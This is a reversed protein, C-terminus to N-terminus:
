VPVSTAVPAKRLSYGLLALGSVASAVAGIVWGNVSNTTASEAMLAFNSNAFNYSAPRGNNMGASEKTFSVVGNASQQMMKQDHVVKAKGDSLSSGTHIIKKGYKLAIVPRLTDKVIVTRVARPQAKGDQANKCGGTNAGDNWNGNSDMVRYTILYTGTKEVNVIKDSSTEPVKSKSTWATCVGFKGQLSDMATAGADTYPFSAEITVTQQKNHKRTGDFPTDEIQCMPCTTDQVTVKRTATAAKNNNSDQCDYKIEYDGVRALNVVDGSVEVDQSINGDVADSCTAGADVYNDNRTAEYTQRDAELITIIPRTDDMNLVTRCKSVSHGAKDKCTYKLVYTGPKLTNFTAGANGADPHATNSNKCDTGHKMWKTTVKDTIDGDCIDFCIFGQFKKTIGEIYEMDGTFGASHQMIQLEEGNGSVQNFADINAQNFYKWAVGGKSQTGITKSFGKHEASTGKNAHGFKFTKGLTTKSGGQTRCTELCRKAGSYSKASCVGGTSVERGNVRRTYSCDSNSRCATTTSSICTKTAVTAEARTLKVEGLHTIALSPKLTDVISVKRSKSASYGRQDKCTYKVVFSAGHQRFPLQSNAINQVKNYSNSGAYSITAIAQKYDANKSQTASITTTQHMGQYNQNVCYGASYGYQKSHASSCKVYSDRIDACQSGQDTWGASMGCEVQEDFNYKNCSRSNGAAYLGTSTWGACDAGRVVTRSNFRVGWKQQMNYNHCAVAGNGSVSALKTSGCRGTTYRYTRSAAANRQDKKSASATHMRGNKLYVKPAVTDDVTITFDTESTATQTNDAYNKGFISAFDSITFKISQRSKSLATFLYSDFAVTGSSVKNSDVTYKGNSLVFRLHKRQTHSSMASFMPTVGDYNDSWSLTNEPLNWFRRDNKAWNAAKNLYNCSEIYNTALFSKLTLKPAVTDVMIMAFVLTEADNGSQDRADYKIIFEGRRNWYNFPGKGANLKEAAVATSCQRPSIPCKENAINYNFGADKKAGRANCNVYNYCAKRSVVFYTYARTVKITGEHHDYATATPEKCNKYSATNQFVQCKAAYSNSYKASGQNM